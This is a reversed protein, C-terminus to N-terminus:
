WKEDEPIDGNTGSQKRSEIKQMQREIVLKAILDGADEAQNEKLIKKLKEENVDLRYLINILQSFDKSIMENITHSLDVVFSESLVTGPDLGFEKKILRVSLTLDDM